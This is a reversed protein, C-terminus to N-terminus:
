ATAADQPRHLLGAGHHRQGHHRGTAGLFKGSMIKVNWNVGAVGIGNGGMAGITGPSTRATTTPRGTTSATTTADFDWGYIDDVYGNGDNDIGNVPDYPNTWVNAALDPHTVDIGEDIVRRLRSSSGTAGTAWAEAAQSGYPQRADHRRRVHGVALRQHLVPRELRRTTTLLDLEARRVRRRAAGRASRDAAAQTTGAPIRVREVSRRGAKPAVVREVLRNGTRARVATAAATTVGSDYGVVLEGPVSAPAAPASVAPMPAPAAAASAAVAPATAALVSVSVALAIRRM